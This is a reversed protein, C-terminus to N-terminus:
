ARGSRIRGAYVEAIRPLVAIALAGLVLGFGVTALQSDLSTSLVRSGFFAVVLVSNYYLLRLLLLWPSLSIWGKVSTGPPTIWGGRVAAGVLVMSLWVVLTAPKSGSAVANPSSLLYLFFPLSTFSIDAFVFVVDDIFRGFASKEVTVATGHGYWDSRSTSNAPRTDRGPPEPM